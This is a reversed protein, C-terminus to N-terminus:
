LTVNCLPLKPHSALAYPLRDRFEESSEFSQTEVVRQYFRYPKWEENRLKQLSPIRDRLKYLPIHLKHSPYGDVFNSAPNGLRPPQPPLLNKVTKQEKMQELTKETAATSAAPPTGSRVECLWPIFNLLFKKRVQLSPRKQQLETFLFKATKSPCISCDIHDELDFDELGKFRNSVDSFDRFEMDMLCADDKSRERYKLSSHINLERIGEEAGIAVLEM